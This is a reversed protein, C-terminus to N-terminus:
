RLLSLGISHPDDTTQRLSRSDRGVTHELIALLQGLPRPWNSSLLLVSRSTGEHDCECESMNPGRPGVQSRLGILGVQLNRSRLGIANHSM